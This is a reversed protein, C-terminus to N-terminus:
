GVIYVGWRCWRSRQCGGEIRDSSARSGSGDGEDRIMYRCRGRTLLYLMVTAFRRASHRETHTTNRWVGNGSRRGNRADLISPNCGKWVQATWVATRHPEVFMIPRCLAATTKRFTACPKRKIATSVTGYRDERYIQPERRNYFRTLTCPTYCCQTAFAPTTGTRSIASSYRYPTSM